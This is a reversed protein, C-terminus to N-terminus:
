PKDRREPKQCKTDELYRTLRNRIFKVEKRTLYFSALGIKLVLSARRDGGYIEIEKGIVVRLM